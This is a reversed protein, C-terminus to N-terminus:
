VESVNYLSPTVTYATVWSSKFTAVNMHQMMNNEDNKASKVHEPDLQVETSNRSISLLQPDTSPLMFLAVRSLTHFHQVAENDTNFQHCETIQCMTYYYLYSYKAEKGIVQGDANQGYDLANAHNRFM